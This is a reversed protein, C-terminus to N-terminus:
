AASLRTPSGFNESGFGITLREFMLVTLATAWGNGVGGTVADEDLQVDDFFVENFEAEGSIQRLGRVTVGPADMPVIFMTLGKHKPQEPDTRARLLEVSAYQTNTTCVKQSYM